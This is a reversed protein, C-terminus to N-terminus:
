GEGSSKDGTSLQPSERHLCLRDSAGLLAVRPEARPQRRISIRLAAPIHVKALSPYFLGRGGHCPPRPECGPNWCVRHVVSSTALRRPFDGTNAVVRERNAMPGPPVVPFKASKLM